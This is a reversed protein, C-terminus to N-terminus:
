GRPEREGLVEELLTLPDWTAPYGAYVAVRFLAELIEELSAGKDPVM